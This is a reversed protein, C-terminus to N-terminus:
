MGKKTNHQEINTKKSKKHNPSLIAVNKTETENSNLNEQSVSSNSLANDAPTGLAENSSAPEQYVM